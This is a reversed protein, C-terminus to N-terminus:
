RKRPTTQEADRNRKDQRQPAVAIISRSPDAAIIPRSSRGRHDVAIISRSSRGRHDAAIIPRSSRGRHDAAIISRSSRGRHDAAIISRSPDAQDLIYRLIRNKLQHAVKEL